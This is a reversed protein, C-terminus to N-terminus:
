RRFGFINFFDDQWPTSSPTYSQKPRLASKNKNFADHILHRIVDGRTCGHESKLFDIIELEEQSIEVTLKM